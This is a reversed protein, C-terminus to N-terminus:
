KELINELIKFDDQLNLFRCFKNDRCTRLHKELCRWAGAKGRTPLGNFDEDQSCSNIDPDTLIMKSLDGQFDCPLYQRQSKEFVFHAFAALRDDLDEWGDGDNDCDKEYADLFPELTCTDGGNNDLEIKACDVFSLVRLGCAANFENACDSLYWSKLCDTELLKAKSVFDVPNYYKIVGHMLPQLTALTPSDKGELEASLISYRYATRSTGTAIKNHIEILCPIRNSCLGQADRLCIVGRKIGLRLKEVLAENEAEAQRLDAKLEGMEEAFQKCKKQYGLVQWKLEEMQQRIEEMTETTTKKNQKQHITWSSM